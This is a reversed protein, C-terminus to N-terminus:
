KVTMHRHYEPAAAKAIAHTDQTQGSASIKLGEVGSFWSKKMPFKMLFHTMWKTVCDSSLQTM